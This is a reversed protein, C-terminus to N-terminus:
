RPAMRSSDAAKNSELLETARQVARVVTNGAKVVAPDSHGTLRDSVLLAPSLAGRLDHRLQSNATIADQLRADEVPAPPTRVGMFGGLGATAGAVIGALLAYGGLGTAFLAATPVVFSVIGCIAANTVRPSM